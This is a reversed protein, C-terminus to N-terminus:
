ESARVCVRPHVHVTVVVVAIAAAAVVDVVIVPYSLLRFSFPVSVDFLVYDFSRFLVFPVVCYFPIM